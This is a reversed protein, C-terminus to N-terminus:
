FPLSEWRKANRRKWRLRRFERAAARAAAVLDAWM